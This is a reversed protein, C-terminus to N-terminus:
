FATDNGWDGETGPDDLSPGSQGWERAEGTAEALSRMAARHAADEAPDQPEARRRPAEWREIESRHGEVLADVFEGLIQPDELKEFEAEAEPSAQSLDRGHLRANVYETALWDAVLELRRHEEESIEPMSSTVGDPIEARIDISTQGSGVSSIIATVELVVTDALRLESFLRDPAQQYTQALILGDFENDPARLAENMFDQADLAALRDRVEDQSMGVVLPPAGDPTEDSELVLGYAGGTVLLGAMALLLSQKMIVPM